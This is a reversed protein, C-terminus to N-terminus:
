TSAINTALRIWFCNGGAPLPTCGIEGGCNEVVIRCFHLRLAAPPLAAANTPNWNVFLNACVDPDIASGNDEFQWLLAQPEETARVVVAGSAPTRELANELLNEVVRELHIPDAPVTAVGVGLPPRELRVGKEAFRPAAVELARRLVANGNAGTTTLESRGHVSRLEDEFVSLIRHILTQQEQTARAALGLLLKTRPGNDEMEILRLSTIINALTATMEDAVCHLLIQKKQIESNLRQHAIVTERARQLVSKRAEFAEGLRELLLISHGDLTMATAELPVETGSADQEV